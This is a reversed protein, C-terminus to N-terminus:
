LMSLCSFTTSGASLVIWTACPIKLLFNNVISSAPHLEDHLLPALWRLYECAHLRWKKEPLMAMPTRTLYHLYLLPMTGPPSSANLTKWSSTIPDKNNLLIFSAAHWSDPVHFHESLPAVLSSFLKVLRSKNASELATKIVAQPSNPQLVSSTIYIFLLNTYFPVIEYRGAIESAVNGFVTATTTTAYRVGEKLKKFLQKPNVSSGKASAELTDNHGPIDM